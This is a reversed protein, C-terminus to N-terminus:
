EFPPSFNYTAVTEGDVSWSTIPAYRGAPKQAAPWVVCETSHARQTSAPGGGGVAVGVSQKGSM